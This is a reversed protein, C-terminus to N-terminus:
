TPLFHYFHFNNCSVGQIRIMLFGPTEQFKKGDVSAKQSCTPLFLAPQFTDYWTDELLVMWSSSVILPLDKLIGIYPRFLSAKLELHELLSHGLNSSLFVQGLRSAPVGPAEQPLVSGVTWCPLPIMSPM